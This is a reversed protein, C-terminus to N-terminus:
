IWVFVFILITTKTEYSEVASIAGVVWSSGSTDVASFAATMLVMITDADVVIPLFMANWSKASSTIIIDNYVFGCSDCEVTKNIHNGVIECRLWM